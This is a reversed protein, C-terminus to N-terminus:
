AFRVYAHYVRLFICLVNTNYLGGQSYKYKTIIICIGRAAVLNCIGVSAAGTEWLILKCYGIVYTCLVTMRLLTISFFIIETTFNLTNGIQHQGNDFFAVLNLVNQIFNYWQQHIMIAIHRAAGRSYPMECWKLSGAKSACSNTKDLAQKWMIELKM